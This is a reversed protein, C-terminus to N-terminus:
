LGSTPICYKPTYKKLKWPQNYDSQWVAYGKSNISFCKALIGSPNYDAIRLWSDDGPYYRYFDIFRAESNNGGGVYGYSSIVFSESRERAAAPFSTKATWTNNSPNYECLSNQYLVYVQGNITVHGVGNVLYGKNGISFGEALNRSLGPYNAKKTWKITASPNFEWTENAAGMLYGKNGITFYSPGIILTGPFDETPTWTNTVFDYEFCKRSLSGVQQTRGFYAKDGIVFAFGIYTPDFPIASPLIQWASGDFITIKNNYFNGPDLDNNNFFYAKNNYVVRASPNNGAYNLDTTWTDGFCNGPAQAALPTIVTQPQESALEKMEKKCGSALMLMVAIFIYTKKM